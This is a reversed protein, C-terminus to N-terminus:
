TALIQLLKNLVLNPHKKLSCEWIRIVRYGQRKLETSYRRDRSKNRAIKATWYETNTKPIHGCKPCGHWYCGDVFIVLRVDNFVFDPTGLFGKPRIKWGRIGHRVLLLRLLLETSRNGTSRIARM